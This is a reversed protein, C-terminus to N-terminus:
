TKKQKLKAQIVYGLVTTWFRQLYEGFCDTVGFFPQTFTSAHDDWVVVIIGSNDAYNGLIFPPSLRSRVKPIDIHKYLSWDSSCDHDECSHDHLCAM